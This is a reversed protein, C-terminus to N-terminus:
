IINKEQLNKIEDESLGLLGNLIDDTNEGLYPPRRYTENEGAVGSMKVPNGVAQVTKGDAIPFDILMNRAKIHPNEVLDEPDLIPAAAIGVDRFMKAIEHKSFQSGWDELLPRFFTEVQSGRKEPTDFEPNTILDERGIVKCFKEWHDQMYVSVTFWGDKARFDGVIFSLFNTEPSPKKGTLSYNMMPRENLLFLSDVMAVDVYRGEGTRSADFIATLLGIAGNLGTFIDGLSLGHFGLSERSASRNLLNYTVGGLAEGLNGYAAWDMYPSPLVDKHGYGSLSVYVLKKNVEKLDHYGLGLKDMVGNRFNEVVVDSQQALRKFIEKGESSALNLTISKKNRNVRYMTSSVKQGEADVLFPGTGRASEGVKPREVKIVEAGMDALMQTMIPAAVMHEASLVRVGSLPLRTNKETEM